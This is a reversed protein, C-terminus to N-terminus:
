AGLEDVLRCIARRMHASRVSFAQDAVDLFSVAQDDEVAM